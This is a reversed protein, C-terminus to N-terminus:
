YNVKLGGLFETGDICYQDEVGKKGFVNDIRIYVQAYRTINQTVSLNALTYDSLEQTNEEDKYRKGIYRGNLNIGLGLGSIKWDFEFYLTHKPKYTLEKGTIKDETDLFTYGFRGSLNDMIQSALNLEIGQTFAEGINYYYFDWPPRGRRTYEFGIMDKVENRFLCLNGLLDRSIRWEAGLQYGISKEPELDPNAHMLFPVMRWGDAYLKVLGPGKFARGVSGRLRFNETVNCLFSAKPNVETGWRDHRDARAGITFTFTKFNTEDQLYFSHTTQDAKFDKMEDDQEATQYHYGGTVLHRNMILRNYNLEIEYSREEWGIREGTEVVSYDYNFLSGRLKLNSVKDPSWEWISNLSNRKQERDSEKMKHLSYYPKLTLKAAPTFQYQFSGQLANENYEDVEREIGESERHTYNLFYGFKDKRFGHTAKYIRRNRSGFAPSASFSLKSPASKSIINIVGGIADSGYLCSAPGKVVEIRQVMEVPYAQLDVADKHGGHVRQGDVLILTHKENLGQLEVKGKDGWGYSENVQVGSLYRLAHQVTQINAAEIEERTVVSTAVPVDKLLHETKTATVVILDGKIVTEKLEFNVTTIQDAFVKVKETMKKYGMMSVTLTFEGAPVATIVYSGDTGSAAGLTTGEIVVNAGVLPRKTHADIVKGEIKGTQAFAGVPLLAIMLVAAVISTLYRRM